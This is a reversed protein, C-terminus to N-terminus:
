TNGSHRKWGTKPVVMEFRAGTGYAGCEAIAIGTISLIERSLFLGFGTNRGVGREFIREKQDDPIGPGDDEWLIALRGDREECWITVRSAGEAHRITNAMLNAFVMEIMPDALVQYGVCDVEVPMGSDSVTSILDRVAQWVPQRMGLEEYTRTFEIQRQIERAARDIEALYGSKGLDEAQQSTLELYGQLTMLKNQIDHRTIGALIRLKNNAMQLAEETEKRRTIDQVAGHLGICSGNFDHSRRGLAHVNRISGDPRVMELELSFPEGAELTRHIAPKLLAWSAPTYLPEHEQYNLAPLAPDRGAISYLEESWTMSDTAEVWDWVGINALQHAEKLRMQAAALDFEARRRETIDMGFEILGSIEGEEDYVPCGRILFIRGDPVVVEGEEVMGTTMSRIVPCDPCPESRNQWIEYCHRGVMEEPRQGVSDGSVQNAYLVKMDTDYYTLMVPLAHFIASKEAESQRLAEDAHKRQSIDRVVGEIGAFAGSDDFYCSSSVSAPLTTGDRKRFLVEYDHVRGEETIRKMFEDREDPNVWFDSAPVGVIEEISDYGLIRAASPSVMRVRGELDTRYYIDQFNEIIGRFTKENERLEAEAEKRDTIDTALAMICPEGHLIVKTAHVEAPYVSGDKRQHRTEFIMEEYPKSEKWLWETFEHEETDPDIDWVTMSLLEERSYGTNQVSKENVDLFAGSLDHVFLMQSARDVLIQYKEARVREEDETRREGDECGRLAVAKRIKRELEAFRSEP